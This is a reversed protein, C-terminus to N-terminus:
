DEPNKRFMEENRERFNIEEEFLGLIAYVEEQPHNHPNVVALITLGRSRASHRQL